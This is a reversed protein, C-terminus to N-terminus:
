VGKEGKKDKEDEFGRVIVGVMEKVDVDEDSKLM